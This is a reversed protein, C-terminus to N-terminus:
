MTIINWPDFDTKSDLGELKIGTDIFGNQNIDAFLYGDKGDTVFVYKGKDDLWNSAIDFAKNYRANESMGSTANFAFENYNGATAGEEKYFHVQDFGGFDKVIDAHAFGPGSDGMKFHFTDIGKGGELYDKQKGGWLHDQGAGGFLHDSGAGGSLTDDGIGTGDTFDGYLWDENAGGGLWDNHGGGILIDSGSGGWMTDGGDSADPTEGDGYLRVDSTTKRYDIKDSDGGGFVEDNGYAGRPVASFKFGATIHDIGKGGFITDNGFGSWLEDNGGLGFMTDDTNGDSRVDRSNTGRFLAM